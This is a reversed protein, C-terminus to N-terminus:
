DGIGSIVLDSAARLTRIGAEDIEHSPSRKRNTVTVTMRHRAALREALKRNSQAGALVVEPASISFQMIRSLQEM